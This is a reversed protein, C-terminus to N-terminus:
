SDKIGYLKIIGQDFNGSSMQFRVSDVASTNNGYGALHIISSQNAGHYTNARSLFHKAFSTSSPNFLFM